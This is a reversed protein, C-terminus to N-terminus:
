SERRKGGMLFEDLDTRNIRFEGGIRDAKLMKKRCWIWVTKLDVGLMEAIETCTVTNDEIAKLTAMYENLSDREILYNRGGPRIWRLKDERCLREIKFLPFGTLKVAEQTNVYKSNM